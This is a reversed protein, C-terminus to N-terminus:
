KKFQKDGQEHTKQCAPGLKDDHKELCAWISKDDGSCKFEKVEKECSKWDMKDAAYAGTIAFAAMLGLITKM